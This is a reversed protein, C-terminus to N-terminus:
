NFTSPENDHFWTSISYRKERVIKVERHIDASFFLVLSGQSPKIITEIETKSGKQYIVLEGGEICDNLYLCCSVKRHRNMNHQDLHTKYFGGYEYVSFQSEFRKLSLHFNNNTSLM